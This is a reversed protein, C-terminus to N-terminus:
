TQRSASSRSPVLTASRSKLELHVLTVIVVASIAGIVASCIAMIWWGANIGTRDALLLLWQRPSVVRKIRHKWNM